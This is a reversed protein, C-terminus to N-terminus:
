LIMNFRKNQVTYIPKHILENTYVTETQLGLSENLQVGFLKRAKISPNRLSERFTNWLTWSYLQFVTMLFGDGWSKVEPFYIKRTFRSSRRSVNLALFASSRPFHRLETQSGRPRPAKKDWSGDAAPLKMVRCASSGRPSATRDIWAATFESSNM